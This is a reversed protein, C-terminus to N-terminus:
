FKNANTKSLRQVGYFMYYKNRKASEVLSVRMVGGQPGLGPNVKGAAQSRSKILVNIESLREVGVYILSENGKAQEILSVRM